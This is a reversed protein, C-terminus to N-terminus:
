RGDGRIENRGTLDALALSAGLLEALEATPIAGHLELLRDRFEALDACDDLLAKAQDAMAGVKPAALPALQDLLDDAADRAADGEAFDAAIEVEAAPADAPAGRKTWGHGYTAAIYEPTPDFGLGHIIKDREAAAKLDEPEAHDRWVRPPKAGPFNWETLWVAPGDNWSECVLDNDAKVVELKVEQHVKAQALSGGNESTMTQSLVVKAIARDWYAVFAGFDGGSSRGAELFSVEFGEPLLLASDRTAARLAALAKRREEKGAGRPATGKATPIAFKELYIAWFRAANRKMFVPWYLWYALGRGYPDDDHELGASFTWFKREPMVVGRPADRTLLRLNGGRDWRFRRARRVKVDDLVIRGGEAAFLLEGVAFGYFVGHLMKSCVNDWRIRHLQEEQFAAAAKDQAGTGGPEVRWERAIAARQRQEWTAKVQDDRMLKEYLALDGRGKTRLIEDGPARLEDVLGAGFDEADGSAALEELVPLAEAAPKMRKAM